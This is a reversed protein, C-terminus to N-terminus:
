EEGIRPQKRGRGLGLAHDIAQEAVQEVRAGERRAVEELAAVTTASLRWSVKVPGMARGKDFEFAV